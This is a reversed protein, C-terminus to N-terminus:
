RQQSGGGSNENHDEIFREVEGSTSCPSRDEGDSPWNPWTHSGANLTWRRYVNKWVMLSGGNNTCRWPSIQFFCWKTNNSHWRERREPPMWWGKGTVFTVCHWLIRQSFETRTGTKGNWIKSRLRFTFYSFGPLKEIKTNYYFVFFLIVLWNKMIQNKIPLQFHFSHIIGQNDQHGNKWKM